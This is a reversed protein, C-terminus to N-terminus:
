IVGWVHGLFFPYIHCRDSKSANSGVFCIPHFFLMFGSFEGLGGSVCLLICRVRSVLAAVTRGRRPYQGYLAAPDAGHEWWTGESSSSPAHPRGGGM